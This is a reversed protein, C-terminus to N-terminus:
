FMVDDDFDFDDGSTNSNSNGGGGSNNNGGGSGNKPKPPTWRQNQIENLLQQHFKTWTRTYCRSTLAKDEKTGDPTKVLITSEAPGIFSFRVRYEGKTYGLAIVGDEDRAVTLTVKVIPQDSLKSQGNQFVFGHKKPQIVRSQFDKNDCAELLTEFLLGREYFDLQVEKHRSSKGEQYVGDNVKLVIEGNNQIEWLLQAPFKAGEVPEMSRPHSQRWDNM